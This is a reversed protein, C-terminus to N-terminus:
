PNNKGLSLFGAFENTPTSNATQIAKYNSDKTIHGGDKHITMDKASQSQFEYYMYRLTKVDRM